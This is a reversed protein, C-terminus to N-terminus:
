TVPNLRTSKRDVKALPTDLIKDGQTTMKILEIELDPHLELLSDRVFEAQWMALPSKRTAIKIIRKTM